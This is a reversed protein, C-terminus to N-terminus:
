SRGARELLSLQAEVVADVRRRNGIATPFAAFTELLTQRARGDVLASSAMRLVRAATRRHPRRMVSILARNRMMRARRDPRDTEEPAPEHHAIVAPSHVLLWGRSVMDIALLEEEGGVHLLPHFGDAMLFASRRVVSGCALFGLVCKGAPTSPLPSDHFDAVIPDPRGGPEVIVSAAILGVRPHKAFVRAAASLSGPAWWSDDDAFAVLETAAMRVGVNRAAGGLNRGLTVIEIRDGFHQRLRETTDDTSADDVVIIPWEEPLTLLREVTACARAARNYTAMVITGATSVAAGTVLPPRTM